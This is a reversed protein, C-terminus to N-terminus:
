GRAFFRLQQGDLAFTAGQMVSPRQESFDIIRNDSVPLCVVSVCLQCTIHSGGIVVEIVARATLM